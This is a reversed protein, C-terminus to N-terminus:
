SLCMAVHRAHLLAHLFVREPATTPRTQLILPVDCSAVIADNSRDNSRDDARDRLFRSLLPPHNCGSASASRLSLSLSLSLSFSPSLSISPPIAYRAPKATKFYASPPARRSTSRPHELIYARCKPISVGARGHLVASIIECTFISLSSRSRGDREPM